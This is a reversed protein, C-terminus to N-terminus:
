KHPAPAPALAPAPHYGPLHGLEKARELDEAPDNGEEGVDKFAKRIQAKDEQRKQIRSFLEYVCPVVLLTLFTSVIVGGIISIAMPITTEYGVGIPLSEPIAAAICAISTMLIPRLRVPCAELLAKKVDSQGRDRAANTFDVLLISNKKVIGMLLILGIMSYMNLSQGTILLALFAGSVSFPLAVLVSIPDIFSNFQSALVTYAVFLGLVLALILSDFTEKFTQSSGSLVVRYGAPLQKAADEVYNLADQQSHGPAPNAFVSIARQRDIRTISQLAPVTKQQTVDRLRVLNNASNNVLLSKLTEMNQFKPDVQVMVYYRHGNETYQNARVGGVMGAITSGIDQVSVGHLGAQVRDPTFDVEPKGLLYDTDIDTALGSKKLGDMIGQAQKWLEDWDNGRITFEIPLRPFRHIWAHIFGACLGTTDSGCVSGEQALGGHVGTAVTQSKCRQRRSSRQLREDHYVDHRYELRSRRLWRCGCLVAQYKSGSKSPGRGKEDYRRYDSDLRRYKNEPSRPLRESRSRSCIRETSVKNHGYLRGHDSHRYFCSEM